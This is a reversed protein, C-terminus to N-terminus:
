PANEFALGGSVSNVVIVMNSISSVLRNVTSRTEPDAALGPGFDNEQLTKVLNAIALSQDGSYRALDAATAIEAETVLGIAREDIRAVTDISVMLARLDETELDEFMIAASVLQEVAASTVELANVSTEEQEIQRLMEYVLAIGELASVSAEQFRALTEESVAEPPPQFFWAHAPLAYLVASLLVGLFKHRM